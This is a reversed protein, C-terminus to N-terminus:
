LIDWLIHEYNQQTKSQQSYIILEQRVRAFGKRLNKVNVEGTSPCDDCTRHRSFQGQTIKPQLHAIIESSNESSNFNGTMVAIIM